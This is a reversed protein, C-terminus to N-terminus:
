RDLASLVIWDYGTPSKAERSHLSKRRNLKKINGGPTTPSFPTGPTTPTLPSSPTSPTAPSSTLSNSRLVTISRSIPLNEDVNSPGINNTASQLRLPKFARRKGIGSDPNPGALTEDWLHDLFGM